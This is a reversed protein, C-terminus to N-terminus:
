IQVERKINRDRDIVIYIKLTNERGNTTLKDIRHKKIKNVLEAKEIYGETKRGRAVEVFYYWRIHEANNEAYKCSNEITNVYIKDNKNIMVTYLGKPYGSLSERYVNFDVELVNYRAGTKRHLLTVKQILEDDQIVLTDNVVQQAFSLFPIIILLNKM